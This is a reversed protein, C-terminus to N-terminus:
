QGALKANDYDLSSLDDPKVSNGYMAADKEKEVTPSHETSAM